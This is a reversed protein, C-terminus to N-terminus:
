RGPSLAVGDDRPAMAAMSSSASTACGITLLRSGPSTTSRRGLAASLVRRPLVEPAQHSATTAQVDRAGQGDGPLHALPQGGRPDHRTAGREAELPLRGVGALDPAGEGDGRHEIAADLLGAAAQADRGLEDADGVAILEPRLAVIAIEGVDEGDLVLHGPRDDVV